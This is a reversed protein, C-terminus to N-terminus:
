VVASWLGEYALDDDIYGPTNGNGARQRKRKDYDGCVM